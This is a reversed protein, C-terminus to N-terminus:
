RVLCHCISALPPLRNLAAAFTPPRAPMKRRSADALSKLRKRSLLEALPSTVAVKFETVADHLQKCDSCLVTQIAFRFGQDAGGAVKAHYGCNPCEFLYTRGM